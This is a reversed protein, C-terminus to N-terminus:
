HETAFSFCHRCTTDSDAYEAEKPRMTLPCYVCINLFSRVKSIELEGYGIVLRGIIVAETPFQSMISGLRVMGMARQAM